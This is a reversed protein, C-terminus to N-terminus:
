FCGELHHRLTVAKLIDSEDAQVSEKHITPSDSFAFGVYMKSGDCFWPPDEEGIKVEDDWSYKVPGALEICCIYRFAKNHARLYDEVEKRTMGPMVVQQYSRLVRQYTVKRVFYRVAIFLTVALLFSLALRLWRKMDASIM